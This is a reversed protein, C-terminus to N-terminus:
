AHRIRPNVTPHMFYCGWRLRLSSNFCVRLSSQPQGRPRFRRQLWVLWDLTPSYRAFRKGRQTLPRTGTSGSRPSTRLEIDPRCLCWQFQENAARGSIQSRRLNARFVGRGQSPLPSIGFTCTRDRRRLYASSYRWCLRPRRDQEVM